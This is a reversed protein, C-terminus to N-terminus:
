GFTFAFLEVGRDLFLIEMERDEIPVQQRIQYMRYGSVIGVGDADIDSGHSSGPPKGDIHVRIRM